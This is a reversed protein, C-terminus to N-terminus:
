KSTSLGVGHRQELKNMLSATRATAGAHASIVRAAAAALDSSARSDRLLRAVGASLSEEDRIQVAGGHALLADALTAFNEMHPGFVVPKGAVIAEVPNQGGRGLISKGIFVVTAVSYWNRLEGTTNLLLCNPPQRGTAGMETRLAIELGFPALSERIAATREAHRPALILVLTPFEERLKGYVHALLEEEGAHTSGGLLIPQDASIGFARLIEAATGMEASTIAPDYKVSGVVEIRDSSVGLAVWRSVDQPEQVCVLDLCRFTPAIAFRFRRFRAESRRSLRANVLAIALGRARAIAVLNPWVEAEILILKTPRIVLFARHAIPWWDIPNYMVEIWDQAHGNAFAFGTTTTTTLVCRFDHDAEKLKGALKLVVAVEGVSVAHLWVRGGTALRAIVERDYIAFRQWFKHRYNGRRRLKAIYGPLILVLAIPFLLNYLFRFM